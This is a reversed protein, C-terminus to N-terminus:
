KYGAPLLQINKTQADNYPSLLFLIITQIHFYSIAIHHMEFKRMYVFAVAPNESPSGDALRRLSGSLSFKFHV